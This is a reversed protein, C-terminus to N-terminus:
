CLEIPPPCEPVTGLKFADKFLSLTEQPLTEQDTYVHRPGAPKTSPLQANQTNSGTFSSSGGFPNQQPQGSFATNQTQFPAVVSSNAFASHQSTSGLVNNNNTPQGFPSQNTTTGFPSSSPVVVPTSSFANTKNAIGGFPSGSSFPEKQSQTTTSAFPSAKFGFANQSNTTSSQETTGAASAFPSKTSSGFGTSGFAPSGTSGFGTSGFAPSGASGFGTSGFAPSGTTGFGTSGFAPPGTSGFGSSGFSSGPNGTASARFASTNTAPNVPNAAKAFAGFAGSGGSTGGFASKGFSQGGFATNTNSSDFSKSGFASNAAPVAAGFASSNANTAGGFAGFAGTNKSALSSSAASAGFPNGTVNNNNTPASFNGFIGGGKHQNQNQGWPVSPSDTLNVEWNIIPSLSNNEKSELVYRASKQTDSEVTQLCRDMDLKRNNLMQQYLDLRNSDRHQYFELRLEEFSYDRDPILSVTGYGLSSCLPSLQFCTTDRLDNEIEQVKANLTSSNNTLIHSFNCANGKNCRGQQYFKCPPKAM